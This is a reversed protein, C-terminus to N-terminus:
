SRKLSFTHRIGFFLKEFGVIKFRKRKLLHILSQNNLFLRNFKNPHSFGRFIYFINKTCKHLIKSFISTFPNKKILSVIGPFDFFM